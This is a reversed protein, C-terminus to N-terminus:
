DGKRQPSFRTILRTREFKGKRESFSNIYNSSIGIPHVSLPTEPFMHVVPRKM